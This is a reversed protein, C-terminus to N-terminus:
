NNSTYFFVSSMKAVKSKAELQVRKVVFYAYNIIYIIQIVKCQHISSAGSVLWSSQKLDAVHFLDQQGKRKHM